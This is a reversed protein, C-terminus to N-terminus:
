RVGLGTLTYDHGKTSKSGVKMGGQRVARRRGCLHLTRYRDVRWARV